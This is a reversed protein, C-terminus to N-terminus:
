HLSYRRDLSAACVTLFFRVDQETGTLLQTDMPRHVEISVRIPGSVGMLHRNRHDICGSAHEMHNGAPGVINGESFPRHALADARESLRVLLGGKNAPQRM